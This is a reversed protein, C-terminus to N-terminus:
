LLSEYVNVFPWSCMKTLYKRVVEGLNLKYRSELHESVCGEVFIMTLGALQQCEEETPDTIERLVKDSVNKCYVSLSM